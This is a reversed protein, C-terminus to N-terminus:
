ANVEPKLGIDQWCKISNKVRAFGLNMMGLTFAHQSLPQGGRRAAWAAYARYLDGNSVCANDGQLCCAAVFSKLEAAVDNDAPTPLSATFTPDGEIAMRLAMAALQVCEEVFHERTDRGAQMEMLAKAVEGLEEVAAAFTTNPPPFKARARRAEDIVKTMFCYDLQEAASIANAIKLPPIAVPTPFVARTVTM